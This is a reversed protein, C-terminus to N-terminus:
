PGRSGAVRGGHPGAAFTAGIRANTVISDDDSNKGKGKGKGKGAPPNPDAGEVRGEVTMNQGLITGTGSFHNDVLALGNAILTGSNGADDTVTASIQVSGATVTASGQGAWFGSVIVTFNGTYSAPLPKKAFADRAPLGLLIAMCLGVIIATKTMSTARGCWRINSCMPRIFMFAAHTSRKM